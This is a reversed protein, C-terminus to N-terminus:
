SAVDGPSAELAEAIARLVEGPLESENDMMDVVKFVIRGSADDYEVQIRGAVKTKDYEYTTDERRLRYDLSPDIVRSNDENIEVEQAPFVFEHIGARVFNHPAIDKNTELTRTVRVLTGGLEQLRAVLTEYRPRLKAVEVAQQDPDEFNYTLFETREM